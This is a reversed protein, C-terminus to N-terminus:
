SHERRADYTQVHASAGSYGHIGHLRLNRLKLLKEAFSIAADGPPVGTRRGGPDVDLLVNMTLKATEAAENLQNAHDLNDVVILTEPARDLLKILREIKPKG